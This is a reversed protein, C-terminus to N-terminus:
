LIGNINQKKAAHKPTVPTLRDPTNIASLATRPRNQNITAPSIPTTSSLDKLYLTRMHKPTTAGSTTKSPNERNEQNSAPLKSTQYLREAAKKTPEPAKITELYRVGNYYFPEGNDHEWDILTTRLKAELKPLKINIIKRMREERLLRGGDRKKSVLRQPDACAQEFEIKDALIQERNLNDTM